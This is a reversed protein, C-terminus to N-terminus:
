VATARGFMPSGVRVDVAVDYVEGELVTVLKAQANPQQFHLGRLVGRESRSFNDQVFADTLGAERYRTQNWSEFFFGRADGFVRPEIILLGPLETPIVQM